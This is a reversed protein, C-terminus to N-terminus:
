EKFLCSPQRTESDRFDIELKQRTIYVESVTLFAEKQYTLIYKCFSDIHQTMNPVFCWKGSLYIQAVINHLDGKDRGRTSQHVWHSTAVGELYAEEETGIREAEWPDFNGPCVVKPGWKMGGEPLHCMWSKTQRVKESTSKMQWKNVLGVTFYLLYPDAKKGGLGDLLSQFQDRTKIFQSSSLAVSFDRHIYQVFHDVHCCIPEPCKPFRSRHFTTLWQNFVGIEMIVTRHVHSSTRNFVKNDWCSQAIDDLKGKIPDDQVQSEKNDQDKSNERELPMSQLSRPNSSGVLYKEKSDASVSELVDSSRYAPSDFTKETSNPEDDPSHVSGPWPSFVEANKSDHPNEVQESM